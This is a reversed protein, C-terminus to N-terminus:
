KGGYFVRGLCAPFNALKQERNRSILVLVLITVTYPLMSLFQPPVTWGRAQGAFQLITIGGFLLAGILVRSPMWSAFVVLALAIWGRGATMGEAWHPTLMLPLYAGGLGAMMGGFLVALTRVRLVPYGLAYASEHNDGVARLVLGARSSKLFWAVAALIGVSLYAMIDLSFILPGIVPLDSLLAIEIQPLGEIAHGVLPAGVLGSLGAAFITLALGTAVQNTALGLAFLAFVAATLAGAVGGAIVAFLLSGTGFAAAFAAVAGMLMMGEVGLNLVGSREAVLEGTAAFVLPVSTMIVTLILQELVV